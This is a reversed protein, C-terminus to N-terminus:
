TSLTSSMFRSFVNRGGYLISIQLELYIQGTKGAKRVLIESSCGIHVLVQVRSQICLVHGSTGQFKFWHYTVISISQIAAQLSLVNRNGNWTATIYKTIDVVHIISSLLSFLSITDCFLNHLQMSWEFIMLKWIINPAFQCGSDEKKTWSGSVVFEM